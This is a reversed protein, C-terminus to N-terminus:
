KRRIPWRGPRRVSTKPSTRNSTNNVVREETGQAAPNVDQDGPSGIVMGEPLAGEGPSGIQMGDGPGIDMGEGPSIEMGKESPPGIQMGEGQVIQMGEGPGIHMGVGPGVQMGQPLLGVDPKEEGGGTGSNEAMIIPLRTKPGSGSASKVGLIFVQRINDAGDSILSYNFDSLLKEFAKRIPLSDFRFTFPTNYGSTVAGLFIFQIGTKAGIDAIVASLPTNQFDASMRNGSVNLQYSASFASSASLALILGLLIIIQLSQISKHM